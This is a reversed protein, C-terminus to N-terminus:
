NKTFYDYYGVGDGGYVMEILDRSSTSLLSSLEKHTCKGHRYNSITKSVYSAIGPSIRKLDRLSKDAITKIGALNQIEKQIKTSLAGQPPQLSLDGVSAQIKSARANIANIVPEMTSKSFVFALSYNGNSNFFVYNGPLRCAETLEAALEDALDRVEALTLGDDYPLDLKDCIAEVLEAESLVDTNTIVHDLLAYCEDQDVDSAMVTNITEDCLLAVAYPGVMIGLSTDAEIQVSPLEDIEFSETSAEVKMGKPIVTGNNSGGDSGGYQIGLEYRMVEQAVPDLKSIYEEMHKIVDKQDINASNQLTPMGNRHTNKKSTGESATVTGQESIHDVDFAQNYGDVFAQSLDNDIGLIKGETFEAVDEAFASALSKKLSSPINASVKKDLTTGFQYGSDFSKFLTKQFSAEIAERYQEPLDQIQDSISNPLRFSATIAREVSFALDVAQGQILTNVHKIMSQITNEM